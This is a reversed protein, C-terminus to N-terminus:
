DSLPRARPGLRPFLRVANARDVGSLDSDAVEQFSVLNENNRHVTAEPAAPWDTGFLVHDPTTVQLTPLLSHPNGALATDYYVNRLAEGVHGPGIDADDPGRKVRAHEAIRWGLSPLAGGAHALIVTLTPYRQFVGSYIANTMTRATDLPFEIVSSPRGFGLVDIHPCEAPHVFIPTKRRGLEALIPELFPHGFYKGSTNTGLVVGDLTLTDLAHEVEALAADVSNMPLTAFAGFRGPHASILEAYAENVLRATRVADAPGTTPLWELPLSLIQTAIDHRDVFALAADVSWPSVRFGGALATDRLRQAVVGGAYHAHVDIRDRTM